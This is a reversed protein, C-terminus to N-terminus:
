FCESLVTDTDTHVVFGHVSSTGDEYVRFVLRRFVLLTPDYVLYCATLVRYVHVYTFGFAWKSFAELFVSVQGYWQLAM